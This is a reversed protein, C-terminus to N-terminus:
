SLILAASCRPLTGSGLRLAHAGARLPWRCLICRGGKRRGTVGLRVEQPARQLCAEAVLVAKDSVDAHRLSPPESQAITVMAKMPHLSAHPLTGSLMQVWVIGASWMDGPTAPEGRQAVVEPAMYYPTGALATTPAAAKSARRATFWEQWHPSAPPADDAAAPTPTEEGSSRPAVECAVGFDCLKVQGKDHFLLNAAKIDQHM